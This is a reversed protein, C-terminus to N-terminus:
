KLTIGKGALFEEVTVVKTAGIARLYTGKEYPVAIEAHRISAWVSELWDLRNETEEKFEKAKDRYTEFENEVEVAKIRKIVSYGDMPSLEIKAMGQEQNM